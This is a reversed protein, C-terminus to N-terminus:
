YGDYGWCVATGDSKIACTHFAGASIATVTGLGAPVDTQGQGGYGWCAATGDSKIACSHLYGATIRAQAGHGVGPEGAMGLPAAQAAGALGFMVVVFALAMRGWARCGGPSSELVRQRFM